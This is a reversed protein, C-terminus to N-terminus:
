CMILYHDKNGYTLQTTNLVDYDFKGRLFITLDFRKYKFNNTWSAYYKPIGNGIFTRDADTIQAAPVATGDAKYFLWDGTPTFGAFRKGFFAGLNGGAYTRIANGLDGNGGIGGYENYLISYVDNSFSVLKNAQKSATITSNWIFNKKNIIEGNLMLEIGNNKISGVNTYITSQIFPPLQTNYNELLDVTKRSYVDITGSL